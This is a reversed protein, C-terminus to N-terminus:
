CLKMKMSHRKEKNQRIVKKACLVELIINCQLSSLPSGAKWWPSILQRSTMFIIKIINLYKRRHRSEQAKIIFDTIYLKFTTTGLTKGNDFDNPTENFVNIISILWMWYIQPMNLYRHYQQKLSSMKLAVSLNYEELIYRYKNM